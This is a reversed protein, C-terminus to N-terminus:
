CQQTSSNQKNTQENLSVTEVTVKGVGIEFRYCKWEELLVILSMKLSVLFIELLM